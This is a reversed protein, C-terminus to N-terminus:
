KSEVLSNIKEMKPQGYEDYDEKFTDYKFPNVAVKILCWTIPVLIILTPIGGLNSLSKLGDLGAFTMTIWAVAGLMVGWVIKLGPKTEPNDPSIGFSSLGALTSCMADSGAVYTIIATVVFVLSIINSLPLGGFFAYTVMDNGQTTLVEGLNINEFIQMHIAQGSFFTFWIVSFLSSLFVNIGIVTRIKYGYSIRGLFIGSVPAWAMWIAYYWITWWVPWDDGTAAGTFFNKEFFNGLYDGFGELGLNVCFLPAGFVIVWGLLFMFIYFNFKSLNKLGDSLGVIASFVFAAVIGFCIIFNLMPSGEIGFVTRLGGSVAMTGVGLTNAVGCVMAFLIVSDVLQGTKGNVKEDSLIPSLMSSITFTKKMNYYAFAFMVCPVGYIAYPTFTWHLFITSMAFIASEPSNPAIGYSAPPQTVHFIPELAGWFLIGIAVTMALCMTFYAFMGFEPKAKSGGIKVRGIPMFCIVICVFFMVVTVLEYGAGFFKMSWVTVNSLTKSFTELNFLSFAVAAFLLVFSPWFVLPRIKTKM